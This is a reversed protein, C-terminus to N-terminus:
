LGFTAVLDETAIARIEFHFRGPSIDSSYEDVVCRCFLMQWSGTVYAEGIFRLTGLGFQAVLEGTGTGDYRYVRGFGDETSFLHSAGPGADPSLIADIRHTIGTLKKYEPLPSWWVWTAWSDGDYSQAFGRNKDFDRFYILHWQNGLFDLPYNPVAWMSQWMGIGGASIDTWVERYLDDRRVLAAIRDQAPTNRANVSMGVIHPTGGIPPAVDMNIDDPLYFSHQPPNFIFQPTGTDAWLRDAWAESDFEIVGLFPGNKLWVPLRSPFTEAPNYQWPGQLWEITGANDWAYWVETKDDRPYTRFVFGRSLDFSGPVREPWFSLTDLGIDFRSKGDGGVPPALPSTQWEVPIKELTRAALSMSPDFIPVACASCALIVALTLVFRRM